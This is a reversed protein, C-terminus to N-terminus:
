ATVIGHKIAYRVVEAKNKLGLKHMLNRRHSAATGETIGLERAIQASTMGEAILQLVERNRGSLRVKSRPPPTSKSPSSSSRELGAILAEFKRLLEAGETTVRKRATIDQITGTAHVPRDNADFVAKGRVLVWVWHGQKHKLRFEMELLSTDGTEHARTIANVVALDDPHIRSRWADITQGYEEPTYGLMACYREDHVAKGSSLDAAWTGLEANTLALELLHRSKELADQAERRASVDSAMGIWEIIEGNNGMIPVIRSHAWGLSGDIRRVREELEFPIKDRLGANIAAMVQAQDDPHFYTTMWTRNPEHTDTVFNQGELHRLESMDSNMRYVVDFSAEVLGRFLAESELQAQARRKEETIDDTLMLARPASGLPPLPLVLTSYWAIADNAGRAQIEYRTPAGDELVQRVAREVTSHFEAPIYDLCNTGAVDSVKLGAPVRNIFLIRFGDDVVFVISSGYDLIARLISDDAEASDHQKSSKAM